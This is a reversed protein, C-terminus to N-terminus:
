FINFPHSIIAHVIEDFEYLKDIGIITIMYANFM